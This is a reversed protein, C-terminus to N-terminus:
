STRRCAQLKAKRRRKERDRKQRERLKGHFTGYRKGDSATLFNAIGEDIGIVPTHPDSPMVVIEDYSLTVWWTGDRKNLTVSSNITRRKGTQPNTLQEKHYDALKLPVLLVKGKELTSVRLWYDFTSGQDAEELKVVNCNAQICTERL